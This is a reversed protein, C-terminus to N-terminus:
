RGRSSLGLTRGPFGAADFYRAEGVTQYELVTMLGGAPTSREVHQTAVPTAGGPLAESLVRGVLKGNPQVDLNLLHALTVGVDANSAPAPDVFGRRFSPGVAAMFNMTEGRSFSGHMGQGQQLRGDSVVVTCNSPQPCGSTFSRFNVVISPTPPLASGVLNIASLPLTGPIAGLADHVFIGSVYDQTMLARVVREALRRQGHPLYILDSGGNAAVVIDPDDPNSGLVGNGWGAHTNPPLPKNGSDPDFLPLHLLQGLDIALFGPPIFGQPVDPFRMKASPSTKSQRSITAFGHDSTVFIDTTEALGLAALAARISALNADANRIAAMSTPGNIGPVIKNLSDGQNHQSGDPDRSWFVLAFSKGRAKFMPLLVKTAVDVFYAQQAVNAVSTGPKTANGTEGNAGRSPAATPLGAAKLAEVIEPALPAGKDSGTADDFVVTPSNARDSLDFILTPGLKGLAATSFGAQRAAALLTAENLWNGGYHRNMENLIADNEVFPTISGKAEALRFGAFIVNSFDGTDGLYHGTAMASANATTFTPFLSHSNRFWVGEDRLATMAPATEQNVIMGRLGDAVFLVVNHSRDDAYAASSWVLGALALGFISRRTM